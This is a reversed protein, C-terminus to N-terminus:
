QVPIHILLYYLMQRCIYWGNTCWCLNYKEMETCDITCSSASLAGLTSNKEEARIYLVVLPVQLYAWIGAHWWRRRSLQSPHAMIFCIIILIFIRDLSSVCSSWSFGLLSSPDKTASTILSSLCLFQEFWYTGIQIFPCRWEFELLLFSWLCYGM